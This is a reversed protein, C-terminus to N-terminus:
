FRLLYRILSKGGVVFIRIIIEAIIWVIFIMKLLKAVGPYGTDNVNEVIFNFVIIEFILFSLFWVLRAFTNWLFILFGM